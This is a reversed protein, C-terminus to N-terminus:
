LHPDRRRADVRAKMRAALEKQHQQIFTYIQHLHQALRQQYVVLEPEELSDEADEGDRPLLYTFCPRGDADREIRWSSPYTPDEGYVARFPTTRTSDCYTDNIAYQLLPLM